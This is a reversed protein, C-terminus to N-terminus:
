GKGRLFELLAYVQRDSLHGFNPMGTNPNNVRPNRIQDKIRAASWKETVHSLDIGGKGVGRCTHCRVCGQEIFLTKGDPLFITYRATVVGLVLLVASVIILLTKHM